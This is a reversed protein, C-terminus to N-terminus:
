SGPQDTKARRGDLLLAAILTVAVGTAIGGVVDSLLHASEVVRALGMVAVYLGAAVTVATKTAPRVRTQRVVLVLSLAVAAGVALHGSPYHSVDAEPVQRGVVLKLLKEAVLALAPATLALLAAQRWHLVAWALGAIVLAGAVALSVLGVSAAKAALLVSSSTAELERVGWADAAGLTDSHWVLRAITGTVLAAGVVALRAWPPALLHPRASV